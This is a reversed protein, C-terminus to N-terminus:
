NWRSPGPFFGDCFVCDDSLTIRRVGPTVADHVTVGWHKELPTFFAIPADLYLYGDHTAPDLLPGIAVSGGGEIPSSRVQSLRNGSFLDETEYVYVLHSEDLAVAFDLWEEIALDPDPDRRERPTLEQLAATLVGIPMFKPDFQRVESM